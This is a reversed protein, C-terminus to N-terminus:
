KYFTQLDGRGIAAFIPAAAVAIVKGIVVGVLVVAISSLALKILNSTTRGIL